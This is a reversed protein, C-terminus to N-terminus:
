HSELKGWHADCKNDGVESGAHPVLGAWDVNKFISTETAAEVTIM